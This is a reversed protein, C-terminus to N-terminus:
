NEHAMNSAIVEYRSAATLARLVETNVSLAFDFSDGRLIAAPDTPHLPKLRALRKIEAHSERISSIAQNVVWTSAKRYEAAVLKRAKRAGEPTAPFVTSAEVLARVRGQDRKFRVVIHDNGAFAVLTAPEISFAITRGVGAGRVVYVSKNSRSTM